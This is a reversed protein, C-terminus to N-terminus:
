VAIKSVVENSAKDVDKKEINDSSCSILGFLVTYILFTLKIKNKM